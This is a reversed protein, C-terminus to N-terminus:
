LGTLDTCWSSKHHELVFSVLSELWVNNFFMPLFHMLKASYRLGAGNVCRAQYGQWMLWQRLHYSFGLATNQDCYLTRWQVKHVMVLPNSSCPHDIKAVFICNKERRM